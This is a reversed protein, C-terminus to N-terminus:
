DPKRAEQLRRLGALDKKVQPSNVFYARLDTVTSVGGWSVHIPEKQKQQQEETTDKAM